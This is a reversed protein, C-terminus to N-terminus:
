AIKLIGNDLLYQVESIFESSSIQGDAWRAADIKFWQPFHTVNSKQFENPNHLIGISVLYQISNGFINDSIKDQSWSKADNMIQITSTVNKPTSSVNGTNPTAIIEKPPLIKATTVNLYLVGLNSNQYLGDIKYQGTLSNKEFAMPYYFTGASTVYAENKEVAGDPRTILLEVVGGKPNVVAGYLDIETPREQSVSLQATNGVVFGTVPQLPISMNLEQNPTSQPISIGPKYTNKIIESAIGPNTFLNNHLADVVITKIGNDEFGQSTMQGGIIITNVASTDITSSIANPPLDWFQVNYFAIYGHKIDKVGYTTMSGSQFQLDRFTDGYFGDVGDIHSGVFDFEIGKVFSEGKINVFTNGNIWQGTTANFDIVINPYSIIMNEILNFAIGSPGGQMLIGVWNRKVPNAEYINGGEILCQQVGSSFRFVYGSYGSPVIIASDQALKLHTGYKFDFGSFEKSLYYSGSGLYIEGGRDLATKIVINPTDSSMIINNQSDKVLYM